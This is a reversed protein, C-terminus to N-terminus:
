FLLSHFSTNFKLKYLKNLFNTTFFKSHQDCCSSFYGDVKPDMSGKTICGNPQDYFLERVQGNIRIKVSCKDSCAAALNDDHKDNGGGFVGTIANWIEGIFRKNNHESKQNIFAAQSISLICTSLLIAVILYKM